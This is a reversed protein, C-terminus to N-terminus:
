NNNAIIWCGGMCGDKVSADSAAVATGRRISETIDENFPNQFDQQNPESLFPPFLSHIVLSRNEKMEAISYRWSVNAVEDIMAYIQQGYRETEKAYFIEGTEKKIKVYELDNSVQVVTSM